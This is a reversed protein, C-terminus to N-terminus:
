LSLKVNIIIILALIDQYKRGNGLSSYRSLLGWNKVFLQVKGGKRGELIGNVELQM